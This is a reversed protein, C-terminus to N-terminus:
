SRTGLLTASPPVAPKDLLTTVGCTAGIRASTGVIQQIAAVVTDVDADTLAPFVPLSIIEDYAAEAQPCMGARTAYQQQYFPHLHVPLYHVNAGIGRSRLGALLEDRAVGLVEADIRVVYLHYGHSVGDRVGHRAPQSQGTAPLLALAFLLTMRYLRMM